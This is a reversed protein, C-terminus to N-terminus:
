LYASSCLTLTRTSYSTNTQQFSAFIHISQTAKSCLLSSGTGLRRISADSSLMSVRLARVMGMNFVLQTTDEDPKAEEPIESSPAAEEEDEAAMEKVDLRQSTSAVRRMTIVIEKGLSSSELTFFEFPARILPNKNIKSKAIRQFVRNTAFHNIMVSMLHLEPLEPMTPPLLSSPPFRFPKTEPVVSRQTREHSTVRQWLSMQCM